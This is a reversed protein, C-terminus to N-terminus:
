STAAKKRTAKSKKQKGGAGPKPPPGWEFVTRASEIEDYRLARDSGDALRLTIGDDDAATLEGDLRRDGGPEPRVKVTVREGVSRGFHDPRRLPRELGPSSVELTYRGNVPDVDDLVASVATTVASLTDLDVGGQRDVLVRVVTGAHVVDFLELGRAIVVPEVAATIEDATSM